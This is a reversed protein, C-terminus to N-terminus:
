TSVNEYVSLKRKRIYTKIKNLIKPETLVHAYYGNCRNIKNSHINYSITLSQLQFKVHTRNVIIVTIIM